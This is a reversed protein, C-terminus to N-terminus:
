VTKAVSSYLRWDSFSTGMQNQIHGDRWAGYQNHFRLGDYPTSPKYMRPLGLSKAVRAFHAYIKQFLFGVRFARPDLRYPRRETSPDFGDISLDYAIWLLLDAEFLALAGYEILRFLTLVTVMLSPPLAAFPEFPLNDSCVWALLALKPMLLRECTDADSAHLDQIPPPVAHEPFEAPVTLMAHSETHCRKTMVNVHEIGEQRHHYLIIGAIRSIIPSIIDFYNGFVTSRYDFFYLTCNFPHGTLINYVFHQNADLLFKQLPDASPNKNVAKCDTKYFTLSQQFWERAERPVPRDRYVRSLVRDITKKISRKDLALNRVYDALKYFKLNHQGFSDLFPEVEDYKFFDNGGLTAFVAMQNWNLGLTKLLAKRNYGITELTEINMHNASWLQWNGEFIFFDTDHSIIALAKHKVAYAALAQDCEVAVSIIMQGHQKAVRKLKLGTNNPITRWHRNVIQTLPTGQNIDDVIAIMNKYKENQRATWTEQKFEQLTGDYFFVLEAGTEALRKFFDDARREVLGIQSGCLLSYKDDCFLGFLAMLDIVILPKQTGTKANQIEQDM